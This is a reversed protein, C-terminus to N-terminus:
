ADRMTVPDALSKARRDQARNRHLPKRHVPLPHASSQRFPIRCRAATRQYRPATPTRSCSERTRQVNFPIYPNTTHVVIWDAARGTWRSYTQKRSFYDRSRSLWSTMSTMASSSRCIRRLYHLGFSGTLPPRVRRATQASEIPNAAALADQMQGIVESDIGPLNDATAHAILSVAAQELRARNRDIREGILAKPWIRKFKRTFIKIKRESFRVRAFGIRTDSRRFNCAFFGGTM